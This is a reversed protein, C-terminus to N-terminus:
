SLGNAFITSGNGREIGTKGRSLMFLGTVDCSGKSGGESVGIYLLGGESEGPLFPSINYSVSPAIVVQGATTERWCDARHVTIGEGTREFSSLRIGGLKFVITIALDSSGLLIIVIM